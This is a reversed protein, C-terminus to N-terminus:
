EEVEMSSLRVIINCNRKSIISMRGKSGADFRKFTPAENAYVESLVLMNTNLSLNNIANAEASKIVKLLMKAGKTPDFSLIRKVDILRKGRVLDMVIRVKRASIRAKNHKAYVQVEKM